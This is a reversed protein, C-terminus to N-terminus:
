RPVYRFGSGFVAFRALVGIIVIDAGFHVVIPAVLSRSRVRLIGMAAGFTSAAVIGFPGAPVGRYHALGFSVSTVLVVFAAPLRHRLGLVFPLSRWALEEVVANVLALFIVASILLGSSPRQYPLNVALDSNQLLHIGIAAAGALAGACVLTALEGLTPTFCQGPPCIAVLSVGAFGWVIVAMLPVGAAIVVAAGARGPRAGGHNWRPRLEMEM